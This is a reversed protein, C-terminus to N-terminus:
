SQQKYAVLTLLLLKLCKKTGEGDNLCQFNLLHLATLSVQVRKSAAIFGLTEIRKDIEFTAM